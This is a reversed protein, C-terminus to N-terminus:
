TRALAELEPMLRAVAEEVPLDLVIGSANRHGGGGHRRALANVDLPGKSRLSVKTRTAGIERFLAALRSTELLLSHNIIEATDEDHAGLERSLAEPVRLVVLRGGVKLELDSLVRGLLRLFAETAREDIRSFMQAPQVGLEVLESAMRFAEASTNAFRFRGTDSVLALYLAEAAAPSPEIGARRYLEYVLLGTCCATQRIFPVDWVTDPNPHHDICVRTARSSLVAGHMPGLRRPDGNDLMAVVDADALLPDHRSPDYVEVAADPVVDLLSAPVPDANVIRASAGRARILEALAVESGIGDGDPHVHTTLVFANDPRLLSEFASPDNPGM